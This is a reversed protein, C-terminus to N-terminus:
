VLETISRGGDWQGVRFIVFEATEVINLGIETVVQGAQRVEPPNTEEDCKIFFAEEEDKGFLAGEFWQRRLFGTGSRIIKAWLQEDNPGAQAHGCASLDFVAWQTGEAISEEVFM